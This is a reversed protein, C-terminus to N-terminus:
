PCPTDLWARRAERSKEGVARALAHFRRFDGDAEVWLTEFACLGGTYSGMLALDANNPPPDFWGGFRDRGDWATAVLDDYRQRLAALIRAKDARLEAETGGEAYRRALQERTDGLLDIFAAAAAERAEWAALGAPNGARTMWARVGERAVFTAYSENFATAGKVYLAQHALEHFLTDALAAESGDLMTGLIPDEFWGLTSYARARSVSVDRGRARMREAFREADEREFYGRYPVCGAVPFCWRKPELSFPPTAVVNWTVAGGPTPAYTEYSGDAPLDLTDEAFALLEQALALRGATRDDTEADQIYTAVPERSRMLALHGSVAQAYYAPSACGTLLIPLAALCLLVGPVVTRIARV